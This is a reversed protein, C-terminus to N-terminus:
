VDFAKENRKREKKVNVGKKGGTAPETSREKNKRGKKVDIQKKREKKVKKTEVSISKQFSALLKSSRNWGCKEERKEKKKQKKKGESM